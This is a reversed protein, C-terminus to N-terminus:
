EEADFFVDEDEDLDTDQSTSLATEPHRLSCSSPTSPSPPPSSPFDGPSDTPLLPLVEDDVIDNDCLSIHPIDESSTSSLSATDTDDIPRPSVWTLTNDGASNTSTDSDNDLDAVPFVRPHQDARGLTAPFGTFPALRSTNRWVIPNAVCAAQVAVTVTGSTSFSDFLTSQASSSSALLEDRVTAFDDATGGRFWSIPNWGSPLDKIV